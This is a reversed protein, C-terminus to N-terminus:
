VHIGIRFEENALFFSEGDDLTIPNGPLLRANKAYSGNISNLDEILIRKEKNAVSVHVDSFYNNGELKYFDAMENLPDKGKGLIIKKKGVPIIEGTAVRIISVSDLDVIEIERNKYCDNIDKKFNRTNAEQYLREITKGFKVPDLFRWTVIEKKIGSVFKSSAEDEPKVRKLYYLILDIVYKNTIEGDTPLYIFSLKEYDDVWVQNKDILLHSFAMNKGILFRLLDSIQGLFNKVSDIGKFDLLYEELCRKEGVNFVAKKAEFYNSEVFYGVNMNNIRSLEIIDLYEDGEMKIIIKIGDKELKEKIKM